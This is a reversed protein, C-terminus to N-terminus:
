QTDGPTRARQMTEPLLAATAFLKVALGLHPRNLVRWVLSSNTSNALESVAPQQGVQRKVRVSSLGIQIPGKIPFPPLSINVLIFCM